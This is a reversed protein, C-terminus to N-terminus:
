PPRRWRRHGPAAPAPKPPMTWPRSATTSCTFPRRGSCPGPLACGSASAAPSTAGGQGVPAELGGRCAGSLTTRRRRRPGAVPGDDTADPAAMRLNEAVTGSFLHSHQPVVADPGAPLRAPLNRIDGGGFSIQGRHRRPVPAAPEAANIQRQRHFRHHGHHHRPPRSASRPWCRRKRGRSLRLRCRRFEVAAAPPDRADPAAARRAPRDRRVSPRHGPSGPHARRLRRGAPGTMLVYMAMMIALLIQLIYAIFATLAGLNM